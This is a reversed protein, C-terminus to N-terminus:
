HQPSPFAPSETPSALLPDPQVGQQSSASPGTDSIAPDELFEELLNGARYPVSLYDTPSRHSYGVCHCAEHFLTNALSHTTQFDFYARNFTVSGDPAEEAVTRSIHTAWWGLDECYLRDITIPAALKSVIVANTDDTNDFSALMLSTYFSKSDLCENIAECALQLKARESDTFDRLQGLTIM